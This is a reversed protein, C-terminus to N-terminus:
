LKVKRRPFAPPSQRGTPSCPVRSVLGAHPTWQLYNRWCGEGGQTRKARKTLPRQSHTRTQGSLQGARHKAEAPASAAVNEAARGTKSRSVAHGATQICLCRYFHPAWPFLQPTEPSFSMEQKETERDPLRLQGYHSHQLAPSEHSYWAVCKVEQKGAAGDAGALWERYCEMSRLLCRAEPHRHVCMDAVKDTVHCKIDM